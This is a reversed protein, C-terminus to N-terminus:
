LLEQEAKGYYYGQAYDVGLSKVLADIEKSSVFEAITKMNSRKAFTVLSRVVEVTREDELINQIISGDIKVFDAKLSILYSYNSYGSGFDDIAIRVGVAKFRSIIKSISDNDEIEESEVIEFILRNFVDGQEAYDYIFQMLKENMLDEISLNISFEQSSLLFRDISKAVIKYTLEPYLKTKKAVALYHVPSITEGNEILRMLCEYKEIKGTHYDYIPQYFPIIRDEALALHLKKVWLINQKYREINNMSDEYIKVRTNINKAESLAMDAYSFLYENNSAIGATYTLIFSHRDVIYPEKAITDMFHYIKKEVVEVAEKVTYLAFVDAQVRYLTYKDDSIFDFLRSGLEKIIIDGTTHGSTDNIEKFRDINILVLTGNKNHNLHNILSVRNGLGTLPDTSFISKLKSRKEILETVDSGASIYEIITGESDKIPVITTSNYYSEGNKKKNKILGKWIHGTSVKKWLKKFQVKSTEPHRVINHQSGIVENWTYGSVKTFNDNIYNIVGQTDTKSVVSSSDLILKYQELMNLHEKQSREIKQIRKSIFLASFLSLITLIGLTLLIKKLNDYLTKKLLSREEAHLQKLETLYFGSGLVMGWDKILHIYSIKEDVLKTDPRPWSYRIYGGTQKSLLRNINQFLYQGDQTKFDQLNTSVLEKFIPHVLMNSDLDNIWFYGYDGMGFREDELEQFIIKQVKKIFTDKYRGATIYIDLHEVKKAYVYKRHLEHDDTHPKPWPYSGFHINHKLTNKIFHELEVNSKAIDLIHRNVYKDNNGHYLIIGDTDFIYFYGSENDWKLLDLENKYKRLVGARTLSQNIPDSIINHVLDVKEELDERLAKYSIDELIDIRKLVRTVESKVLERNEKIYAREQQKIKQEYSSKTIMITFIGTVSTFILATIMINLFNIKSLSLQM